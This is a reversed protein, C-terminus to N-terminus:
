PLCFSLVAFELLIWWPLFCRNIPSTILILHQVPGCTLFAIDLLWSSSHARVLLRGMKGQRHCHRKGVSSWRNCITVHNLFGAIFSTSTQCKITLVWKCDTTHVTLKHPLCAELKVVPLCILLFFSTSSGAYLFFKSTLMGEAHECPGWVDAWIGFLSEVGSEGFCNLVFFSSM